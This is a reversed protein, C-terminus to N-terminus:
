HTSLPMTAVVSVITGVYASDYATDTICHLCIIM